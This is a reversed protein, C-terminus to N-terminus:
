DLGFLRLYRDLFNISIISRISFDLAVLIKSEIANLASKEIKVIDLKGLLRCMNNYSPTIPEELKAAILLCSVALSGLCTVRNEQKVTTIYMDLLSVALFLTEIKYDKLEALKEILHIISIRTTNNVRDSITYDGVCVEERRM